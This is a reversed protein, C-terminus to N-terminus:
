DLQEWQYSLVWRDAAFITDCVEVPRGDRDFAVRTGLLVPVGSALQLQETEDPTPMRASLDEVYHGIPHGVDELRQYIGGPGTNKRTMATGKALEWPLYSTALEVPEGDRFYRRARVLVPADVDLDLLQAVRETAPEGRGIHTVEVDPTFGESEAEALFAAMGDHRHQRRFRVNAKRAIPPRPRVVARAGASSEILGEAKLVALAQRVTGRSVGHREMYSRESELKDGPGLEGSAIAARLEAALKVYLRPPGSDNGESM